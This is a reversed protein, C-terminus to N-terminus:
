VSNRNSCGEELAYGLMPNLNCRVHGANGGLKFKIDICQKLPLNLDSCVAESLVKGRM